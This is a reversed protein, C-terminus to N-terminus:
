QVGMGRQKIRFVYKTQIAKEMPDVNNEEEDPDVEEITAQPKSAGRTDIILKTEHKVKTFSNSYYYLLFRSIFYSFSVPDFYLVNGTKLLM